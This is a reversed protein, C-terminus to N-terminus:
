GDLASLNGNYHPSRPHCPFRLRRAIGKTMAIQRLRKYICRQVPQCRVADFRDAQPFEGAIDADIVARHVPM